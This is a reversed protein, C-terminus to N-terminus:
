MIQELRRQPLMYRKMMLRTGCAASIGSFGYKAATLLRAHQFTVHLVCTLTTSVHEGDQLRSMEDTEGRQVECVADLNVFRSLPGFESDTYWGWWVTFFLLPAM